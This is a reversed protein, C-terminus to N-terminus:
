VTFGNGDDDQDSIYQGSIFEAAQALRLRQLVVMVNVKMGAM